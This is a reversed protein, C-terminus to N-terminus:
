GVAPPEARLEELRASYRDLMMRAERVARLGGEYRKLADELPLEGDELATVATEIAQLHDELSTTKAM